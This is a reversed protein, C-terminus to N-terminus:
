DIARVPHVLSGSLGLVVCVCVGCGVQNTKSRWVLFVGVLLVGFM